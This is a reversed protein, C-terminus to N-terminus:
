RIKIVKRRRNQAHENSLIELRHGLVLFAKQANKTGLSKPTKHLKYYLLLQIRRSCNFNCFYVITLICMTLVSSAPFGASPKNFAAWSCKIGSVVAQCNSLIDYM